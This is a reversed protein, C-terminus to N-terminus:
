NIEVACFACIGDDQRDCKPILGKCKSCYHDPNEYHEDFHSRIKSFIDYNQMSELEFPEDNPISKRM